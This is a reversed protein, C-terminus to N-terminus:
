EESNKLKRKNFNLVEALLAKPPPEDLVELGYKSLTEFEPDWTFDDRIAELISSAM